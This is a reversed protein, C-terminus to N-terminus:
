RLKIKKDSRNQLELKIIDNEPIITKIDEFTITKSKFSNTKIVIGKKNWQVFNKYWLIKSLIIIQLLFGAASLLGNEYDFIMGYGILILLASAILLVIRVWSGSISDFHIRKM